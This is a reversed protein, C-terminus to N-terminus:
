KHLNKECIKRAEDIPIDSKITYKYNLSHLLSNVHSRISKADSRTHIITPGSKECYDVVDIAAITKLQAKLEPAGRQESLGRIEVYLYHGDSQGIADSLFFLM